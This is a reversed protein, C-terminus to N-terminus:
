WTWSETKAPVRTVHIYVIRDPDAGAPKTIYGHLNEAQDLGGDPLVVSLRDWVVEGNPVGDPQRMNGLQDTAKAMSRKEM